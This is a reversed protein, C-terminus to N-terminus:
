TWTARRTPPRGSNRAPSRTSANVVEQDAIRHFLILKGGSVAPGAFGQGASFKWVVPPGEKPWAIALNTAPASGNRNPGLFQPWDQAGLSLTIATIAALLLSRM